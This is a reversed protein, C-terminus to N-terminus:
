TSVIQACPAQTHKGSCFLRADPEHSRDLRFHVHGIEAVGGLLLQSRSASEKYANRRALFHGYASPQGKVM